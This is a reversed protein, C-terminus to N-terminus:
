LCRKVVVATLDDIQETGGVFSLVDSHLEAILDAPSAAHRMRVAERLRDTGYLEGDASAWEFFGDTVWILVDGAMFRVESALRESKEGDMDMLGLPLADVPLEEVSGTEARYFLLPGHGASFMQMAHEKPDLIGVVATIFKAPPLDYTLLHNVHSVVEELSQHKMAVARFYARCAAVILAPGIGHGTVDAISIITRGDPLTLWDFYDGGTQDAPKSWGAIEFGPVDPPGKPLLGLQISRAIDMERELQEAKRRSEAERLAAIVHVRVQKAVGAAILGGILLCAGYTMYISVPLAAVSSPEPYMWYTYATVVLFGVMSVVGTFFSLLPSLRLVSLTIFFFYALIAPANLARYPGWFDTQTLIFLGITPFSTEVLINLFWAWSPLEKNRSIHKHVLVLIAAEYALVIVLFVSARVLLQTQAGTAAFFERLAVLLLVIVFVALTALIRTRESRLAAARFAESKIDASKM